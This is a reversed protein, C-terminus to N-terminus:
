IEFFFNEEPVNMDYDTNSNFISFRDQYELGENQIVNIIINIFINIIQPLNGNYINVIHM